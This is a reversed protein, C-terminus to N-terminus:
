VASCYQHTSEASLGEEVAVIRVDRGARKYRSLLAKVPTIGFSKPSIVFRPLHSLSELHFMVTAWNKSVFKGQGPRENTSRRKRNFM